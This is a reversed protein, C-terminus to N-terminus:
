WFMRSLEKPMHGVAYNDTLLCVAHRDHTISDEHQLTLREGTYPSWIDRYIHHGRIMSQHMHEELEEQSEEM